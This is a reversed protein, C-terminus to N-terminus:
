VPKINPYEQIFGGHGTKNSSFSHTSLFRWGACDETHLWVFIQSENFCVTKWVSCSSRLRWDWEKSQCYFWLFVDASNKQVNRHGSCTSTVAVLRHSDVTWLQTIVHSDSGAAKILGRCNIWNFLRKSSGETGIKVAIFHLLCMLYLQLWNNCPTYSSKLLRRPSKSWAAHLMQFCFM